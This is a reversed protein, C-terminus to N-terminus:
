YNLRLMKFKALEERIVQLPQQVSPLKIKNADSMLRYWTRQNDKAFMMRLERPSMSNLAQKLGFLQLIKAPSLEPNNFILDALLAKDNVPKYDLLPPRKSEIEDLYHLLIKKAVAPKFLKKFTLDTKIGLKMFLQKIKQRKNLRVEMRLIEFKKRQRILPLLSYHLASDKDITRKSSKKAKEMDYIKDYFVVEYSNCHWKYSHGDNRYDTQNTDLSIKVNAEKIKNIFHYPTSGDTLPINKAYHISSIPAQALADATTELGMERLVIVLKKVIALFDKYSLEDVNNGFLLKPLSLEVKLMLDFLGQTNIRKQLTLHPKYEGKLLEKRKPNQKAQITTSHSSLLVLASPQFKDPQIIQYMSKSLTFVVTDIMGQTRIFHTLM